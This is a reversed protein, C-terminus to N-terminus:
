GETTKVKLSVILDILSNLPANSKAYCDCVICEVKSVLSTGDDWGLSCIGVFDHSSFTPGITIFPSIFVIRYNNCAWM